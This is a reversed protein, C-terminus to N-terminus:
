STPERYRADKEQHHLKWFLAKAEASDTKLTSSLVKLMRRTNRLRDMERAHEADIKEMLNLHRDIKREYEEVLEKATQTKVEALKTSLEEGQSFVTEILAQSLYDNHDEITM